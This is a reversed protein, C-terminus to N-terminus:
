ILSKLDDKSMPKTATVYNAPDHIELDCMIEPDCNECLSCIPKRM